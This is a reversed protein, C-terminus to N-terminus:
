SHKPDVVYFEGNMKEQYISSFYEVKDKVALYSATERYREASVEAVVLRGDMLRIECLELAIQYIVEKVKSVEFM